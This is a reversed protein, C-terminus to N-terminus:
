SSVLQQHDENLLWAELMHLSEQIMGEVLEKQAKPFRAVVYHNRKDGGPDPGVGAKLRHFNKAGGLQEITDEIGHQGGAGRNVAGRLKGTDLSVDDHVIMLNENEIKYYDLIKKISRGSNNMYTLPMALFVKITKSKAEKIAEKKSIQKKVIQKEGNEDEIEEEITEKTKIKKQIEYDISLETQAFMAEFKKDKKLDIKHKKCFAEIIEFGINHRTWDYDTGPNGLGILAKHSAM